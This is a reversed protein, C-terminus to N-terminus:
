HGALWNKNSPDQLIATMDNQTRDEDILSRSLEIAVVRIARIKMSFKKDILIKDVSDTKMLIDLGRNKVLQRVFWFFSMLWHMEGICLFTEM